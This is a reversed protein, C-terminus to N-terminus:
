EYHMPYYPQIDSNIMSGASPALALQQAVDEPVGEWVSRRSGKAWTVILRKGEEEYAISSIRSSLVEKSWDPM